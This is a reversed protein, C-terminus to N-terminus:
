VKKGLRDSWTTRFFAV